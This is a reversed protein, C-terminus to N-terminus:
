FLSPAETIKIPSICEMTNFEANGVANTVPYINLDLDEKTNLLQSLTNLDLVEPNLWVKEAKKDLIVPMREHIKSMQHNSKTTVITCTYLNSGDKRTWTTWLGAMSFIKQNKVTIRMAQKLRENQAWEFFGDAIIVGRKTEFSAKFAKKECLTEARANIMQYGVKDDKSFPPVFGWKILGVRYKTKDSLVVIIDQGPAVNYRPSTIQDSIDEIDYTEHLFDKLDDLSVAITFRGCM